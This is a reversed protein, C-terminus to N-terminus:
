IRMVRSHPKRVFPRVNSVFYTTESEQVAWPSAQSSSYKTRIVRDLFTWSFVYESLWAPMSRCLRGMKIRDQINFQRTAAGIIHADVKKSGLHCLARIVRGVPDDGLAMKRPSTGKLTVRRNKVLFSSSKGNTMYVDSPPPVDTIQLEAAVDAPSSILDRGFAKAKAQILEILTFVKTCSGKSYLGWMQRTLFGTKTLRYIAQDIAGATGVHVLDRRSILADNPFSDIVERVLEITTM